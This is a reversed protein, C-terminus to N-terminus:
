SWQQQQGCRERKKKKRHILEVSDQLWRHGCVETSCLGKGAWLAEWARSKQTHRPQACWDACPLVVWGGVAEDEDEIGRVRQVTSNGWVICEFYSSTWPWFFGSNARRVSTWRSVTNRPLQYDLLFPTVSSIFWDFQFRRRRGRMRDAPHYWCLHARVAWIVTQVKGRM